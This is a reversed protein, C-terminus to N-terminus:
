STSRGSPVRFSVSQTTVILRAETEREMMERVKQRLFLSVKRSLSKCHEVSVDSVNWWVFPMPRGPQTEGEEATYWSNGSGNVVGSGHGRLAIRAGSVVFGARHNQFAIPFAHERWYALDASFLWTGAWDITVDTLDVHLATAIYYTQGAPFVVTGGHNCAAFAARIQATDDQDNGLPLVTCTHGNSAPRLPPQPSPAGM